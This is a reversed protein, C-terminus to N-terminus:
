PEEILQEFTPDLEYRGMRCVSLLEDIVSIQVSDSM